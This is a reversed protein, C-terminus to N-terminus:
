FLVEEQGFARVYTTQVQFLNDDAASDWTASDWPPSATGPPSSERIVPLSTQFEQVQTSDASSPLQSVSGALLGARSSRSLELTCVGQRGVISKKDTHLEIAENCQGMSVRYSELNSYVGGAGERSGGREVAQACAAIRKAKEEISFYLFVGNFLVACVLVAVREAEKCAAIQKAKEEISFYLFIGNFLVACVLVARLRKAEEMGEAVIDAMVKELFAKRERERREVSWGGGALGELEGRLANASAVSSTSPDPLAFAVTPKMHPGSQKERGPRPDQLLDIGGRGGGGWMRARLYEARASFDKGLRGWEWAPVCVLAYGLLSLHRNTILTATASAPRACALLGRPIELHVAWVRGSPGPESVRVHIPYGTVPCRFDDQVTLDMERLTESVAQHHEPSTHLTWVFAEKCAAGLSEKLTEFSDLVQARLSEEVDCAVFFQHLERLEEASYQQSDFLSSAGRVSADRKM